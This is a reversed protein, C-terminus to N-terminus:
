PHCNTVASRLSLTCLVCMGVGRAQLRQSPQAENLPLIDLRQRIDDKTKPRQDKTDAQCRRHARGTSQAAHRKQGQGEPIKPPLKLLLEDQERTARM